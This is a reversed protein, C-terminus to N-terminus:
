DHVGWAREAFEQVQEFLSVASAPEDGACQLVSGGHALTNRIKIVKSCWSEFAARSSFGLASRLDENKAVLNFRGELTLCELRTIEINRAKRDKFIQEVRERQEDSLKEIWGDGYLDKIQRDLGAEGAIILAFTVMGIQPKQLDALTWIKTLMNGDLVFYFERDRLAVIGSALGLGATILQNAEVRRSHDAVTGDAGLASRVAYAPVAKSRVPAVDYDKATLREHADLANEEGDLWLLDSAVDGVKLAAEAVSLIIPIPSNREASNEM